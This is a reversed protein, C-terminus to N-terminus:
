GPRTSTAISSDDFGGVAVDDPVRLGAEHLATVAGAAMLDATVRCRRLSLQRM